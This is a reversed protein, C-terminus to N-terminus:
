KKNSSRLSPCMICEEHKKRAVNLINGPYAIKVSRFTHVQIEPVTGIQKISLTVIISFLVLYTVFSHEHILWGYIFLFHKRVM